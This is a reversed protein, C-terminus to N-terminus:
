DLPVVNKAKTDVIELKGPTGLYRIKGNNGASAKLEELAWCSINGSSRTTAEVSNAKLGAGKISGLSSSSLIASDCIGSLTVNGVSNVNCNVNTAKVTKIEIDGNSNASIVASESSIEDIDIDGASNAVVKVNNGAVIEPIEIDGASNALIRASDTTKIIGTDIDGASYAILSATVAKIPGTTIDGASNSQLTVSRAEISLADIDGASMAVIKIEQAPLSLPSKIKIDGASASTFTKVAPASIRVYSKHKGKINMNNKYSVSIERNALKVQIYPMLNDPAYIEISKPGVTYIIDLSTNTRVADFDGSNVKRTIYKSSPIIDVALASGAFAFVLALLTFVRIIRNM